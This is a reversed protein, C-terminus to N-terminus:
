MSDIVEISPNTEIFSPSDLFSRIVTRGSFAVSSIKHIDLSGSFRGTSPSPFIVARLSPDYETIAYPYVACTTQSMVISTNGAEGEKEISSSFFSIVNDSPSVAVRLM